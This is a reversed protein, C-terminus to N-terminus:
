FTPATLMRLIKYKIEERVILDDYVSVSMLNTRRQKGTNVNEFLFIDMDSDYVETLINNNDIVISKEFDVNDTNTILIKSKM